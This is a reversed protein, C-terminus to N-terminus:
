IIKLPLRNSLRGNRSKPREKSEPNSDLSIFERLDKLKLVVVILCILFLIAGERKVSFTDSEVLRVNNSFLLKGLM